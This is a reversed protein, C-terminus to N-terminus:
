NYILNFMYHCFDVFYPWLFVCAAIALLILLIQLVILWWKNKQKIEQLLYEYENEDLSFSIDDFKRDAGIITTTVDQERDFTNAPLTVAGNEDLPCSIDLGSSQQFRVEKCKIPNGKYDRFLIQYQNDPEEVPEEIETTPEEIITKPTDINIVIRNNDRNVVAQSAIDNVSAVALEDLHLPVQITAIGNADTTLAYDNGHYALKVEQDPLPSGDQLTQVEIFTHETLDFEYHSKGEVVELFFERNGQIEKITFKEGVCLNTFRYVGDEATSLRKIRKLLQIGFEYNALKEGDYLFSLSIPNPTQIDILDPRGANAVPKKFGWGTLLIKIEDSDDYYIYSDDPITFLIDAQKEGIQEAVKRKEELLVERVIEQKFDSASIMQKWLHRNDSWQYFGGGINIKAFPHNEGLKTELSKYLEGLDKPIVKHIDHIPSKREM